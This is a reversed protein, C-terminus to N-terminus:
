KGKISKREGKSKRGNEEQNREMRKLKKEIKNQTM